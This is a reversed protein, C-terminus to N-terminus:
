KLNSLTAWRSDIKKTKEGNKTFFLNNRSNEKLLEEFSIYFDPANKLTARTISEFSVLVSTFGRKKIKEILYLFDIDGSIITIYGKTNQKEDMLDHIDSTIEVDFNCKNGVLGGTKYSKIPIMDKTFINFNYKKLLTIFNQHSQNAPFYFNVYVRSIQFMEKLYKKLSPYNLKYNEFMEILNMGCTVNPEEIFIHMDM